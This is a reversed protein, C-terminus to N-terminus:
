SSARDAARRGLEAVEDHAGLVDHVEGIEFYETQRDGDSDIGVKVAIRLSGIGDRNESREVPGIRRAPVSKTVLKRGLRIRILRQNTVAFLVKGKNFLPLFPASLMGLGVLIFPVGFLPFAWSLAGTGSQMESAGWSAMATWFLAFATWPIAFFYIGFGSSAVRAIQRGQWVVREGSRMERSLALELPDPGAVASPMTM